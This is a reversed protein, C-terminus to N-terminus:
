KWGQDLESIDQFRELCLVGLLSPSIMDVEPSLEPSPATGAFFCSEKRFLYRVTQIKRAIKMPTPRPAATGPMASPRLLNLIPVVDM